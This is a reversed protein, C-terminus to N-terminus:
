NPFDNFKKKLIGSLPYTKLIEIIKGAVGGEGYPNAMTQISHHFKPTFLKDLAVRISNETPECDIVNEPKIRGNQRDGINVVGTKFGPAEYLGSSSNGVVGDVYQLASLYRLQGLSTFAVSTEHHNLVHADIMENIIRGNADANAKTFIIHTDELQTLASLLNSFQIETTGHELTAPHFTVLLNKKALKFGISKEFQEKTMLTLSYINDIAIAGVNFVRDPQEGLQIVRNRYQETATFHLHSMKTISHRISDDASGETLEGGHLHGVPIKAVMAASVAVFTEFRDGLVIMLDPKLDNLADAFGIMGVGMSKTIGIETDSSLLMEIKENIVFGDQEIQQYTMGFEPSLHMGTAILQLEFEEGSEIEKILGYLLGYEARTGTIVCIKLKKM